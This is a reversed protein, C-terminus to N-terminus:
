ARASCDGTRKPGESESDVIVHANINEGYGVSRPFVDLASMWYCHQTSRAERATSRSPQHASANCSNHLVAVGCICYGIISFFATPGALVRDNEFSQQLSHLFLLFGVTAGCWVLGTCGRRMFVFFRFSNM